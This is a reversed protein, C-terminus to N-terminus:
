VPLVPTCLAARGTGCATWVPRRGVQGGVLPIKNTIQQCCLVIALVQGLSDRVLRYYDIM